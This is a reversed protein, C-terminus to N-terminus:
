RIYLNVGSQAAASGITLTVPVPTGFSLGGPIRVNIQMVGATGPAQGRFLLTAPVGGIRVSVAAAPEPYAPGLAAGGTRSAPITVGQGTAYLVVVSGETAPVEASNVTGDQNWIRPVLGPKAAAVPITLPQSPQGNVTVELRAEAVGNLEYPVQVNLQGSQLFYLPSSIGNWTVTVGPGSTPLLGNEFALTVAQDPGLSSGFISVIEGPAVAGGMGSFANVVGNQTFVPVAPILAPGLMWLENTNGSGTVGGFFFITGRDNAYAAEHRERPSPRTGEPTVQQWARRQPDYEWTDNLVGAGRGGFVVLKGRESDFAMGYHERAPPNLQATRETWSNNNLDFSWLDGQPCPGFGSSCGGYLYMQNNTGDYAAHHLCRRLPRIGSPSINKWTNAALDFAWTDDFRGEDTFGHSIIMRDRVPEYIASHGYRRSPGAEDRGLQQWAGRQIDFAWVDSFFGGSQGGFVVLRNRVPDHILTHGFRAPPKSGSAPVEAWRRQALSYTWLDNRSATDQGGFLYLQRGAPSYAIAGDFRASPQVGEPPLLSYTLTQSQALDRVILLAAAALFVRIVRKM